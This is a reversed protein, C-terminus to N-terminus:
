SAKARRCRPHYISFPHTCPAHHTSTRLTHTLAHRMTHAQVYLIPLHMACPTHNCPTHHITHPSHTCLQHHELVSTYTWREEAGESQRVKYMGHEFGVV